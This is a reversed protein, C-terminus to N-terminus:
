IKRTATEMAARKACLHNMDAVMTGRHTAGVLEHVREYLEPGELGSANVERISDLLSRCEARTLPALVESIMTMADGKTVFDVSGRGDCIVCQRNIQGRCRSCTLIATM